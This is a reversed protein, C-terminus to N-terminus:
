ATISVSTNSILNDIQQDIVSMMNNSPLLQPLWHSTPYQTPQQFCRFKGSSPHIKSSWCFQALYVFMIGVSLFDTDTHLSSAITM